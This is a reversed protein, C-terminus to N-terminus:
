EPCAQRSNIGTNSYELDGSFKRLGRLIKHMALRAKEWVVSPFLPEGPPRVAAVSIRFIERWARLPRLSRLPSVSKEVRLCPEIPSRVRLNEYPASRAGSLRPIDGAFVGLGCLDPFIFLITQLIM